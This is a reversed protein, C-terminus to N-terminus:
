LCNVGSIFRSTIFYKTKWNVNPQFMSKVKEKIPVEEEDCLEDYLSVWLRSDEVITKWHWSVLSLPEMEEASLYSFIEFFMEDPLSSQIEEEEESEEVLEEKRKIADTQDEEEDTGEASEKHDGETKGKKREDRVSGQKTSGKGNKKGFLKPSFLFLLSALLSLLTCGAVVVWTVDLSNWSFEM